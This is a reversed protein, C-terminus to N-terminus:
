DANRRMACIYFGDTRHRAPTLLLGPGEGGAADEPVDGELAGGQSCSQWWQAVDCASFQPHRGLFGEIQDQNEEALVSCTVYVLRGGPRVYAAAQDLLGSQEAVRKELADESLRWKADPRRRWTGSGTCPADVFVLDMKERLQSLAAEDGPTMVQVNRAGARKLREFIPRLQHKNSDYAFVQGTNQMMAAFALTKGGAGACLVLVQERPGAGSLLAAVQSGADQVEFWGKGHAPEAEVNPLRKGDRRVEIRVGSRSWAISQAGHASLAELVKEREAKLTNARLDLPARESLAAAEERAREGFQRVFREELWDPLDGAVHVPADGLGEGAVCRCLAEVEAQALPAMANQSGDAAAAVADPELGLAEPAAGLVLARPADSGFVHAISKRRRLAGYVLSGIASRDGSGAFRNARGWDGLALAAPRHQEAMTTLIDAAAQLRAGTKM